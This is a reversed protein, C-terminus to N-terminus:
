GHHAPDSQVAFDDAHRPLHRHLSFHTVRAAQEGAMVAVRYRGRFGRFPFRGESLEAEVADRAGGAEVVNWNVTLNSAGTVVAAFTVHGGLAVRANAPQIEIPETQGDRRLQILPNRCHWPDELLLSGADGVVELLDRSELALGCDLQPM